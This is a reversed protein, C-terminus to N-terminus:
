APIRFALKLPRKRLKGYLDFMGAGGLCFAPDLSQKPGKLVTQDLIHPKLPDFGRLSRVPERVVAVELFVVLVKAYRRCVIGIQVPWVGPFPYQRAYQADFNISM